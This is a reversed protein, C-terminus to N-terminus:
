IFIFRLLAVFFFFFVSWPTGTKELMNKIYHNERNVYNGKRDFNLKLQGGRTQLGGQAKSAKKIGYILQAKNSGNCKADKAVAKLEDLSLVGALEELTIAEDTDAFGTDKSQLAACATDM